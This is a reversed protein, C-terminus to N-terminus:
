GWRGAQRGATECQDLGHKTTQWISPFCGPPTSAFDLYELFQNCVCVPPYPSEVGGFDGKRKWEMRNELNDLRRKTETSVSKALSKKGVKTRSKHGLSFKSSSFRSLLCCFIDFFHKKEPTKEEADLSKKEESATTAYYDYINKESHMIEVVVQALKM